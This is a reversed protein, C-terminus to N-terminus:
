SLCFPDKEDDIEASITEILLNLQVVISAAFAIAHARKFTYGDAGPTWITAEIEARPKGILHKKGPRILALVIALDAISRPRIMRVIGAYNRIHALREVVEPLDLLSWDPERELLADLHAEDRVGAYISNNLFDVKFYGREAAADTDYVALDSIPDSPIDQLYVGSAHRVPRGQDTRMAPVHPIGALASNRDAFDIDIDTTIIKPASM